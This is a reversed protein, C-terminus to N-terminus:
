NLAVLGPLKNGAIFEATAGGSLSVYGIKRKDIGLRKLANSTHGGSLVSFGKSKEIAKMLERTGFCFQKEECVGSTGKVYIAKAKKIEKVYEKVTDKGIDFVEYNSPFENIKLERRKGREKVALDIPKKVKRVYKKLKGIVIPFEKIEKKLFETQAGLNKGSAILCLHGFIGATLVKKKKMLNMNAEPKAGALIYLCNDIRIKDLSEIERQMTRGIGAMMMKPFGVISTHDRHSVSFADNIYIDFNKFFRLLRNGSRKPNFEDEEMRINELLIAKGSKLKRIENRAKDGVIDRVFKIDVHKKLLKSHKSLSIFDKKGPRSQHALVVVGAGKRLLEKITKASELIRDSMVVKGDIIESNLDARLIVAKGNFDFSDLTKLKMEGV